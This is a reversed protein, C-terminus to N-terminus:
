RLVNPPAGIKNDLPRQRASGPSPLPSTPQADVAPRWPVTSRACGRVNEPGRTTAVAILLTAHRRRIRIAHRQSVGIHATRGHRRRRMRRRGQDADPLFRGQRHSDREDLGRGLGPQPRSELRRRLCCPRPASTSTGATKERLRQVSHHSAAKSSPARAPPYGHGLFGGRSRNCKRLHGPGQVQRPRSHRMGLSQYRLLKEISCPKNKQRCGQLRVPNNQPM